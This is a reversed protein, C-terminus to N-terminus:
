INDDGAAIQGSQPRVVQGVQWMDYGMERLNTCLAIRQEILDGHHEMLGALQRQVDGLEISLQALRRVNLDAIEPEATLDVAEARAGGSEYSPGVLM